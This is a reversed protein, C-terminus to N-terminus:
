ILELFRVANDWDRKHAARQAQAQSDAGWRREQYLEDLSVAQWLAEAEFAEAILALGDSALRAELVQRFGRPPTTPLRAELESLPLAAKRGAVAARRSACIRALVDSM